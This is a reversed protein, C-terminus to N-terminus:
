LLTQTGTLISHRQQDSPLCLEPLLALLPLCSYIYIFSRESAQWESGATCGLGLLGLGWDWPSSYWDMAQPKPIGTKPWM